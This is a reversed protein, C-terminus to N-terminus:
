LLFRKFTLHWPSGFTVGPLSTLGRLAQEAKVVSLTPEAATAAYGMFFAADENFFPLQETGTDFSLTLSSDDGTTGSSIEFNNTVANFRVEIGYRQDDLPRIFAGNPIVNFGSEDM